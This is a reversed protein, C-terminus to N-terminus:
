QALELSNRGKFDKISWDISKVALLGQLASVNHFEVVLMSVTKDEKNKKNVANVDMKNGLNAILFSVAEKKNSLKSYFEFEKCFRVAYHLATNDYDNYRNVDITKEEILWEAIDCKNQDLAKMLPTLKKDDVCNINAGKNVWEKAEELTGDRCASLLQSNLKEQFEGM